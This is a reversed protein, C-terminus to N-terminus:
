NIYYKILYIILLHAPYFVYFAYKLVKGKIFGRKGNYLSIPIFAPLCWWHNNLVFASIIRLVENQRLAYLLLIFTYGKISFDARLVVTLAGFLLLAAVQLVPKNKFTEIVYMGLFGFLLTVFVSQDKFSFWVGHHLLDWPIESILTFILLSVGYKVRNRTHVFGEVLLFAFLPFALRGIYRMIMYLKVTHGAFSFLVIRPDILHSAIHDILMTVVALVKIASGSLIKMKDPLFNQKQM